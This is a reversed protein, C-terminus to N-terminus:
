GRERKKQTERGKIGERDFVREISGAGVKAKKRFGM